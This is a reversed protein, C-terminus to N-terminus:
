PAVYKRGCTKVFPRLIYDDSHFDYEIPSPYAQSVIHGVLNFYIQTHVLVRSFWRKKDSTIEYILLWDPEIHLERFGRWEGTLPHDLLKKRITRWGCNKGYHRPSKLHNKAVVRLSWIRKLNPRTILICCSWDLDDFIAKVSKARHVKGARADKM